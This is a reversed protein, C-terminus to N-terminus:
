HTAKLKELGLLIVMVRMLRISSDGLKIFYARVIKYFITM